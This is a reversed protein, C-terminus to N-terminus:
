KKKMTNEYIKDIFVQYEAEKKIKEDPKLSGGQIGKITKKHTAIAKAADKMVTLRSTETPTLKGQKAKFKLEARESNFGSRGERLHTQISVGLAALLGFAAGKPIGVDKSADITDGISMPTILNLGMEGWTPKDGKFDKGGALFVTWGAGALPNLKTRLFTQAVDARDRFGTLPVIEGTLRKTKGTAMRSLFVATQSLGAMPDVRTNGIKVKLFDSSRPDTEITPKDPDDDDWMLKIGMNIIGYMIGIGAATRLYERGILLRTRLTGHYFPQGLLVQFRSATLRASFLPLSLLANVLGQHPINGRGTWVNVFNALAKAEALTVNAGAASILSEFMDMRILNLMTSYARESAAVGPIKDALRSSYVEEMKDLAQGRVTIALGAQRALHAIARNRIELDIAMRNKTSKLAKVMGKTDKGVMLPHGAFALFGQRGLASVDISTMISRSVGSAEPLLDYLKQAITRNKLADRFLGLNYAAKIEDAELQLDLNKKTLKLPKKKVRPSFDGRAIKDQLEAMKNSIRTAFQQNRIMEVRHPDELDALDQLEKLENRRAQLIDWLGRLEADSPKVKLKKEPFLDNDDIRRETETINRTAAKKAIEIRQEDTLEKKGFIEQEQAKLADRQAKLAEIQENTHRVKKGKVIRQGTRVSLELAAIERRLRTEIAKLTSATHSDVDIEPDTEVLGARQKARNVADRLRKKTKSAKRTKRKTPDIGALIKNLRTIERLEAQWGLLQLRAEDETIDGFIGNGAIADIAEQRTIDPNIKRLIEHVRSVLSERTKVGESQLAKALKLITPHMREIERGAEVAAAIGESLEQSTPESQELVKQIGKNKWAEEVYEALRKGEKSTASHGSEALIARTVAALSRLGKGIKNGIVIGIDKLLGVDFALNSPLTSASFKTTVRGWAKAANEDSFTKRPKRTSKKPHLVDRIANANEVAKLREEYKANKAEVEALREAMEKVKALDEATANGRTAIIKKRIMAEVSFDKNLEIRFANLARSVETGGAKSAEAMEYVSNQAEEGERVAKEMATDDNAEKAKLVDDTAKITDNVLQRKRVQLLAVEEDRIVRPSARLENMLRTAEDSGADLKAKAEAALQVHTKGPATPIPERGQAELDIKTKALKISATEPEPAPEAKKGEAKYRPSLGTKAIAEDILRQLGETGRRALGDMASQVAEKRTKGYGITQGTRAESVEWRGDSKEAFFDFGDYGPITIKRANPAEVFGLGSRRVFYVKKELTKKPKPKKALSKKAPAPPAATELPSRVPSLSKTGFKKKYERRHRAAGKSDQALASDPDLPDLWTGGHDVSGDPHVRDFVTNGTSTKYKAYLTGDEAQFWEYKRAGERQLEAYAGQIKNKQAETTQTKEAVEEVPAEPTIEKKSVVAKPKVKEGADPILDPKVPEVVPKPVESVPSVPQEVPAPPVIEAKPTTVPTEPSIPAEPPTKGMKSILAGAVGPVSLVGLQVLLENLTPFWNDQGTDVGLETAMKQMWQTFLEEGMEAPVGSFGLKGMAKGGAMKSMVRATNPAFKALVKMAGEGSVEGLHETYNTVFAEAYARVASKDSETVEFIGEKNRKITPLLKENGGTITGSTLAVTRFITAGAAAIAQATLGKVGAKALAKLAVGKAAGYIGGTAVFDVMYSPLIAIGSGIKAWTTQDRIQLEAVTNQHKEIFKYADSERMKSVIKDRQGQINARYDELTWGKPPPTGADVKALIGDYTDVSKKVSALDESYLRFDRQYKATFLPGFIPIKAGAETGTASRINEVVGFPGTGEGIPGQERWGAVKSQLVGFHKALQADTSKEVDVVEVMKGGGTSGLAGVAVAPDPRFVKKMPVPTDLTPAVPASQPAIRGARRSLDAMISESTVPLKERRQKLDAFIDESTATTM